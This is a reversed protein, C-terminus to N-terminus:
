SAILGWLNNDEDVEDYPISLLICTLIEQSHIIDEDSPKGTIVIETPTM